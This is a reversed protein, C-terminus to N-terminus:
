RGWVTVRAVNSRAPLYPYHAQRVVVVRFPYTVVGYSRRFRYPHRWAGDRAVRPQAFTVWEGRDFAQLTVRVRRGSVPEPVRGSFVVQQGVRVARRDVRLSARAVARVAAAAAAGSRAEGAAALLRLQGSPLRRPLDVGFRGNANSHVTAVDTVDGGASHLRVTVAVGEAPNGDIHVQGNLRDGPALTTEDLALTTVAERALGFTVPQGDAGLNSTRSVGAVDAAAAVVEYTGAPLRDTPLRGVLVVGQVTTPLSLYTQTGLMRVGLAGSVLESMGIAQATVLGPAAPDYPLVVVGAARAPAPAAFVGLLAAGTLAVVALLNRVRMAGIIRRM